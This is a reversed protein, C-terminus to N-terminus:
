RSTRLRSELPGTRSSRSPTWPHWSDLPIVDFILVARRDYRVALIQASDLFDCWVRAVLAFFDPSEVQFDGTTVIAALDDEVTKEERLLPELAHFEDAITESDLRSALGVQSRGVQDALVGVHRAQLGLVERPVARRLLVHLNREVPVLGDGVVNPELM